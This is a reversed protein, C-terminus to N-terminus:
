LPLPARNVLTDPSNAPPSPPSRANTARLAPSALVPPPSAHARHRPPLPPPSTERARRWPAACRRTRTRVATATRAHARVETRSKIGAMSKPANEIVSGVEGGGRQPALGDSESNSWFSSVQRRSFSPAHSFHMLRSNSPHHADGGRNGHEVRQAVGSSARRPDCQRRAPPRGGEQTRSAQSRTALSKATKTTTEPVVDGRNM